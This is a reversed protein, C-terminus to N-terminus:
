GALSRREHELLWAKACHPAGSGMFGGIGSRAVARHCPIVIPIPNAACAQGIARPASNLTKALEGYTMVDGVPIEILAQWVRQQFPTGAPALPLVFPSGPDDFYDRLSAIARRALASSAPVADAMVKVLDISLLARESVRIRLGGFPATIQAESIGQSV